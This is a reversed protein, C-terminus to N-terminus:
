SAAYETIAHEIQTQTLRYDQVLDDYSEGAKKRAALVAAMIRTGKVVPQGSSLTPNIALYKTNMPYIQVPMGLEDRDIRHLYKELLLRMAKQGHATANITDGLHEIFISKGFTSFEHSLLPHDSTPIQERIYELARRVNPLPINQERTARLVHAEALNYFSLLGQSPSAPVIVPSFHVIRGSHGSRYHQGRCWAKMTSLPIRLYHAADELSYRPHERVDGGIRIIKKLAMAAENEVICM